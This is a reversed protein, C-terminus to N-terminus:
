HNYLEKLLYDFLQAEPYDAKAQWVLNQAQFLMGSELQKNIATIYTLESDPKEQDLFGRSVEIEGMESLNKSTSSLIWYYKKGEQFSIGELSIKRADALKREFVKKDTETEFVEIKFDSVTGSNYMTSIIAKQGPLIKSKVPFIKENGRINYALNSQSLMGQNDSNAMAMARPNEQNGIDHVTLSNAPTITKKEGNTLLITLEGQKVSLQDGPCFRTPYDIKQRAGNVYYSGTNQFSLLIAAGQKCQGIVNQLGIQLALFLIFQIKM